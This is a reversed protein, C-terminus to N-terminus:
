YQAGTSDNYVAVDCQDRVWSASSPPRPKTEIDFSCRLDNGIRDDEIWSAFRTALHSGASEPLAEDFRFSAGQGNGFTVSRVLVAGYYVGAGSITFDAEPQTFPASSLPM